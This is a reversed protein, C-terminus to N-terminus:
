KGMIERIAEQREVPVELEDQDAIEDIVDMPIGNDIAEINAEVTEVPFDKDLEVKFGAKTYCNEGAKSPKKLQGSVLNVTLTVYGVADGKVVTVVVKIEAWAWCGSNYQHNVAIGKKTANVPTIEEADISQLEYGEYGNVWENVDLAVMREASVMLLEDDTYKAPFKYDEPRLDEPQWNVGFASANECIWIRFNERQATKNSDESPSWNTERSVITSVTKHTKMFTAEFTGDELTVVTVKNARATALALSM